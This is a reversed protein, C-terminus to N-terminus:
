ILSKILNTFNLVLFAKKVEENKITESLAIGKETYSNNLNDFDDKIKWYLQYYEEVGIKEDILFVLKGTDELSYLDRYISIFYLFYLHKRSYYKKNYLEPLINMKLYNNIINKTFHINYRSFFDVVNSILLYEKLKDINKFIDEQTDLDVMEEKQKM